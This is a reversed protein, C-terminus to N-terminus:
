TVTTVVPFCEFRGDPFASGVSAQGQRLPIRQSINVAAWELGTEKETGM